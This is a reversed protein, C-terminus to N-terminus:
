FCKAEITRITCSTSKECSKKFLILFAEITRITRVPDAKSFEEGYYRSAEELEALAGKEDEEMIQFQPFRSSYFEQMSLRFREAGEVAETTGEILDIEHCIDQFGARLEELMGSVASLQITSAPRVHPMSDVLTDISPDGKRIQEIVFQLLSTKKDVAKIDSLKLLTDLKFGAAGGRHTGANLHNGLELVAQLLKLFPTCNKLESCAGHIINLQEQVQLLSKQSETCMTDLFTYCRVKEMLGEATRAFLMCKIRQELRPVCRIEAFYREVIGLKTPDSMGRYKIHRGELYENVDRLESPEPLSRFLAQLNDVTLCSDDANMLAEKIDSFPKRIGSLEISIMYARKQDVFRIESMKIKNMKNTKVELIQFMNELDQFNIQPQSDLSQQWASQPDVTRIKDWHLQKLKL